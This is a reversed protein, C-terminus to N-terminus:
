LDSGDKDSSRRKPTLFFSLYVRRVMRWFILSEIIVRPLVRTSWIVDYLHPLSIIISPDRSLRSHFGVTTAWGQSLFLLGILVYIVSPTKRAPREEFKKTNAHCSPCDNPVQNIELTTACQKCYWVIDNKTKVWTYVAYWLFLAFTMYCILIEFGYLILTLDNTM